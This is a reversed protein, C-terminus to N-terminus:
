GFFRRYIRPFLGNQPEIVVVENAALILRCVYVVLMLVVGVAVCVRLARRKKKAGFVVLAAVFPFLLVWLPHYAFARGFELRLAYFCARSMGCGPCSIGLVYKIPCTIGCAFMLAYVAVIALVATCTKKYKNFFAKM